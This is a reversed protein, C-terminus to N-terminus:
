HLVEILDEDELDTEEITQNLDLVEGEFSLKVDTTIGSHQKYSTVLSNLISTPKVRMSLENGNNDRLKLVIRTEEQPQEAEASPTYSYHTDSDNNTDEALKRRMELRRAEKEMQMDNYCKLPYVEMPYTGVDTMGVGAPSSNLFVLNNKYTLVIEDKKLNKKKCFANIATHFQDNDLIIIKVPKILKDMVAKTSESLDTFNHVYNIRISVKSAKRAHTSPMERLLKALEPDLDEIDDDALSIEEEVDNNDDDDNTIEIVSSSDSYTPKDVKPTREKKNVNSDARKLVNVPKSMLAEAEALYQDTTNLAEQM